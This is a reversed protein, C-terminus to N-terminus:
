QRGGGGWRGGAMADEEEWQLSEPSESLEKPVRHITGPSLGRTYKVVLVSSDRDKLCHLSEM